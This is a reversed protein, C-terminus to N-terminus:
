HTAMDKSTYLCTNLMSLDNEGLTSFDFANVMKMMAPQDQDQSSKRSSSPDSSKQDLSSRDSSQASSPNKSIRRAPFKTAPKNDTSLHIQDVPILNTTEQTKQRTTVIESLRRKILSKECLKTKNGVNVTKLGHMKDHLVSSNTLSSRRDAIKSPSQLKAHTIPICPSRDPTLPINSLRDLTKPTDPLRDPTKQTNPLREPTKPHDPLIDATKHTNPLREQTQQTSLLKEPTNSTMLSVERSISSLLMRDSTNPTNKLDNPSNLSSLIRLTQTETALEEPTECGSPEPCEQQKEIPKPYFSLKNLSGSNQSPVCIEPTLLKKPSKASGPSLIPTSYEAVNPVESKEIVRKQVFTSMSKNCAPSTLEHHPKSQHYLSLLDKYLLIM